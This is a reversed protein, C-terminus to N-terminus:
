CWLHKLIILSSSNSFFTTTISCSSIPILYRSLHIKILLIDTLFPVWDDCNFPLLASSLTTRHYSCKLFSRPFECSTVSSFSSIGGTKSFKCIFYSMNVSSSYLFAFLDIVHPSLEPSSPIIGSTILYTGISSITNSIMFLDYIFLSCCSRHFMELIIGNGLSPCTRTWQDPYPDAIGIGICLFPDTGMM